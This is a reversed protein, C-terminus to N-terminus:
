LNFRVNSGFACYGTKLTEENDEYSLHITPNHEPELGDLMAARFRHGLSILSATDERHRNWVAIRDGMRRKSLVVGCIEDGTDSEDM